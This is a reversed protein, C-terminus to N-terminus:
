EGAEAFSVGLKELEDKAFLATDEIIERQAKRMRPSTLLLRGMEYAGSYFDRQQDTTLHECGEPKGCACRLRHALPHDATM